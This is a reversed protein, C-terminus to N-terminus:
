RVLSCFTMSTGVDGLCNDLTQRSLFDFPNSYLSRAAKILELVATRIEKTSGLLYQLAMSEHTKDEVSNNVFDLLEFTCKATKRAAEIIEDESSQQTVLQILNKSEMLVVKSGDVVSEYFDGEEEGLEETVDM